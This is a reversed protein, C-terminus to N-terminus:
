FKDWYVKDDEDCDIEDLNDLAVQNIDFYQFELRELRDLMMQPNPVIITLCSSQNKSKLYKSFMYKKPVKDLNDKIVSKKITNTRELINKSLFICKENFISSKMSWEHQDGSEIHDKLYKYLVLYPESINKTALKRYADTIVRDTEFNYDEVDQQLLWSYLINMQEVDNLYKYFKKWYVDDKAMDENTILLCYRRDTPSIIIPCNNNSNIIMNNLDKITINKMFREKVNLDKTTTKHKLGEINKIGDESKVENMVVVLKDVLHDNWNGKTIIDSMGDCEYVYDKGIMRILLEKLTDKGTGEYGRLVLIGEIKKHPKKIIHSIHTILMKVVKDGILGGEWGFCKYLHDTFQKVEADDIKRKLDKSRFGQFTNFEKIHTTNYKDLSYPHFTMRNYDIRNKDKLWTDLFDKEKGDKDFDRWNKYKLRLGKETMTSWRGDIEDKAKFNEAFTIFCVESEFKKKIEGYTTYLSPNFDYPLEYCSELPKIKWKIGYEETYKNLTEVPIDLTSYFGDFLLTNINKKDFKKLVSNLILCEWCCLINSMKSGKPNDKNEERNENINDKYFHILVDRNDLYEQIMSDTDINGSPKIKDCFLATNVYNKGYEKGMKKLINDRNEIYYQIKEYPLNAKKTLYLLITPQCCCMDFDKIDDNQIFNRLNSELTQIGADCYLRNNNRVTYEKEVIEDGKELINRLLNRYQKLWKKTEQISYKKTFNSKWENDSLSLLYRINTLNYKDCHKRVLNLDLMNKTNSILNISNDQKNQSFYKVVMKPSSSKVKLKLQTKKDIIM